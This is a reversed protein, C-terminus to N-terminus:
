VKYKHVTYFPFSTKAYMNTHRMKFSFLANQSWTDKQLNERRNFPRDGQGLQMLRSRISTAEISYNRTPM